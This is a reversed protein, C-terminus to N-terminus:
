ADRAMSHLRQVTRWNRATGQLGGLHKRWFSETFPSESVGNPAWVYIERETAIFRDPAFERQEVGALAAQDYGEPMFIVLLRAPESAVDLLPNTSVVRDLDAASRALVAITLGLRDAIASEIAAAAQAPQLDPAGLVLNGSQLYTAVDLFGLETLLERLEAM